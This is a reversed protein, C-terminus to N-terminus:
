NSAFRSRIAEIHARNAGLDGEGLRSASRVQIVGASPDLWFEMDDTFRLWRTQIEAHIYDTREVVIRTRDTARLTAALRAMAATGNGSYRLPEIRAHDQQPHNPYLVAQSTVSNPTLSPAVLRGDRVGLSSKAPPSGALLGAQGAAVLLLAIAVIVIPILLLWRM